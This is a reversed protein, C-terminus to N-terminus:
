RLHHRQLTGASPFRRAANFLLIRKRLDFVARFRSLARGIPGLGCCSAGRLRFGDGRSIGFDLGEGRTECCCVERILPQTCLGLFDKLGLRREYLVQLEFAGSGRVWIVGLKQLRHGLMELAEHGRLLVLECLVWVDDGRQVDGM